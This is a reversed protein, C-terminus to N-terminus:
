SGKNYVKNKVNRECAHRAAAPTSTTTTAARTETAFGSTAATCGLCVVLTSPALEGIQCTIGLANRISITPVILHHTTHGNNIELLTSIYM